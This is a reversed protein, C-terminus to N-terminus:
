ARAGCARGPRNRDTSWRWARGPEGHLNVSGFKHEVRVSQGAGLSVTQHFDRSVQEQGANAAPAAEATFLLAASLLGAVAALRLSARRFIPQHRIM